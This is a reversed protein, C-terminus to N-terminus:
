THFVTERISQFEVFCHIGTISLITNIGRLTQRCVNRQKMKYNRGELLMSLLTHHGCGSPKKLIWSPTQDKTAMKSKSFALLTHCGCGRSTARPYSSCFSVFVCKGGSIAFNRFFIHSQWRVLETAAKNIGRLTQRCANRQKMKYNIGAILMVLLTHDECGSPKKLILWALAALM